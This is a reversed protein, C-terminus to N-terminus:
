ASGARDGAGVPDQGDGRPGTLTVLRVGRRADVPDDHDEEARGILTTPPTALNTPHRPLSLLAPFQDPLGPAVVQFVEEPEHLDQLHHIGLPRLSVGAPLAGAVLREVVETLLIQTGHGAALLRALRNLPAALYDGRADPTAEGAHLAMRVRLTRSPRVLARGALNTSGHHCGRHRRSRHSPPRSLMGWPRSCCGAMLRSSRACCRWTASSPQRWQWAIASGLATSGEIDTFLFTVTGTPLERM